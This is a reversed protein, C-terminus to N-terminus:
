GSKELLRRVVKSCDVFVSKNNEPLQISQLSECKELFGGGIAKLSILGSLDLSTISVCQSLFWTRIILVNKFNTIDLMTLSSCDALFGSGVDTLGGLGSLDLSTLSECQSLFWSNVSTVSSLGSLDVSTISSYSALFSSGITTVSSLGSLDLSTISSNELFRCAISRISTNSNRFSISKVMPPVLKSLLSVRGDELFTPTDLHLCDDNSVALRRLLEERKAWDILWNKDYLRFRKRVVELEANPGVGHAVLRGTECLLEGAFSLEVEEPDIDWEEAAATLVDSVLSDADATFSVTPLGLDLYTVSVQM